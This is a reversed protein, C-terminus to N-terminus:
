LDTLIQFQHPPGRFWSVHKGSLAIMNNHTSKRLHCKNCKKVSKSSIWPPDSSHSHPSFDCIKPIQWFTNKLCFFSFPKKDFKPPRTLALKVNAERLMIDHGGSMFVIKGRTLALFKCKYEYPMVYSHWGASVASYTHSEMNIWIEIFFCLEDQHSMTVCINDEFHVPIILNM